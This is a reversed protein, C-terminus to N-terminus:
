WTDAQGTSARDRWQTTLPKLSDQRVRLTKPVGSKDPNSQLWWQCWRGYNAARVLQGVTILLRYQDFAYWCLGSIVTKDGVTQM